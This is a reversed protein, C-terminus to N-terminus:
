RRADRARGCRGRLMLDTTDRTAHMRKNSPANIPVSVNRLMIQSGVVGGAGYSGFTSCCRAASLFVYRPLGYSFLLGRRSFKRILHATCLQLWRVGPMVRRGLRNSKCLIMRTPTRTWATTPRRQVPLPLRRGGLGLNM